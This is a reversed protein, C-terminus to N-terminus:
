IKEALKKTRWFDRSLIIRIAPFVFRFLYIRGRIDINGEIVKNYFDPDITLWRGYLAYFMSIKGLVEGTQAPSSLGMHLYGKSKKPKITFLLRKIVKFVRKITRQVFDRDLFELVHEKKTNLEDIKNLAKEYKEDLSDLINNIKEFLSDVKESFTKKEKPAKEKKPKKEKKKKAKKNKKKKGKDSEEIQSTENAAQQTDLQLVDEAQVIGSTLEPTESPNIEAAAGEDITEDFEDFEPEEKPKKKKKKPREKSDKGMIKIGCITIKYDLGDGKVFAAKAGAVLFGVKAHAETTKEGHEASIRYSIPTFLVLLVILLVLGLISLLVIGIIKLILLFISM